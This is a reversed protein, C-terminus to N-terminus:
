DLIFRFRQSKDIFNQVVEFLRLNNEYCLDNDGFLMIKVLNDETYNYILNGVIQILNTLLQTRLLSYRPCHLFYHITTEAEASCFQCISCEIIHHSFLHARLPSLGLRLRTHHKVTTPHGVMFLRNPKNSFVKDRLHIKFTYLSPSNRLELPLNNWETVTKPVFSLKYRETRCRPITFNTTCRLAYRTRSATSVPIIQKLYTPALNNNIKYMLILRQFERRTKLTEWGLENLLLNYSTPRYAGTCLLAAEKQIRELKNSLDASLNDYVVNGYELIPRVLTKYSKELSSRPLIHKIRKLMNIVKCGKGTIKTVHEHWLMKSSFTIGLHTHSQVMKLETGDFIVRPYNPPENKLSFIMYVTKSANFTVLWKKAWHSLKELDSNITNFSVIPDIIPNLLSTDDAFLYIYSDIDNIIDNIFVLFLLPGLISGQPVGANIEKWSSSTGNVVVRQSRQSIYSDLWQLLTGEIGLQKLKFLLGKHYVKDFAKTIDLFVACVDRKNDLNNYINDVIHILQYVTSDNKRFGSNKDTLLKNSTLYHYLTNFVLREFVKGLCSLLSVPRYNKASSADGKKHIATVNALKWESPFIGKALSKNFLLTLPKTISPCINKLLRNSIGDPGSAKNVDLNMLVLKTEDETIVIESIRSAAIYTFNPMELNAPIKDLTSQSSFFTNLHEAKEYDTCYTKTGDVLSPLGSVVKNGLLSKVLSWYKKPNTSSQELLSCQRSFYRDKAIQIESKVLKRYEARLRKSHLTQRRNFIRNWRNRLRILYKIYCTMWPKDHRNIKVKRYPIHRFAAAKINVCLFQTLKDLDELQNFAAEWDITTLERNISDYDAHKYHWVFRTFSGPSTTHLNLYGYVLLHDSIHLSCDVGWDTFLGPSDTIILDLTSQSTETIRTPESILQYLNNEEVLNRFQAGLESSAHSDNWTVCRDNFDGYM